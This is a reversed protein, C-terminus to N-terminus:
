QKRCRTLGMKDTTCITGDNCRTLGMKDTDCTLGNSFRTLGGSNTTATTGDNFRTLGLKDTSSTFGDSCRTLGGADKSCTVGNSCRFLGGANMTCTMGNINALQGEPPYTPTTPQANFFPVSGDSSNVIYTGAPLYQQQQVLWDRCYKTANEGRSGVAPNSVGQSQIVQMDAITLGRFFIMGFCQCGDRIGQQTLDTGAPFTSVCSQMAANAEIENQSETLLQANVKALSLLCFLSLVIRM